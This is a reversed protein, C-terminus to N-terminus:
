ADFRRLLEDLDVPGVTGGTASDPHAFEIPLDVVDLLRLVVVLSAGGSGREFESVWSRSVGLRRALEEQSWGLSQRRGRVASVIQHLTLGRM